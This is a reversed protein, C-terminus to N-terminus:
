GPEGLESTTCANIPSASSCPRSTSHALLSRTARSVPMPTDIAPRRARTQVLLTPMFTMISGSMASLRVGIWPPRTIM